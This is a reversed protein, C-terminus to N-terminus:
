SHDTLSLCNTFTTLPPTFGPWNPRPYVRFNAAWIHVDADFFNLADIRVERDSWPQNWDSRAGTSGFGFGTGVADSAQRACAGARSTPLRAGSKGHTQQRIRSLGLRHISKPRDNWEARQTDADLRGGQHQERRLTSRAAFRPGRFGM